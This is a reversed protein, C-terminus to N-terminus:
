LNTSNPYAHSLTELVKERTWYTIGKKKDKDIMVHLMQHHREGCISMLNEQDLQEGGEELPHIHHVLKAPILEGKLRCVECIPTEKIKRNRAAVWLATGYFKKRQKQKIYPKLNTTVASQLGNVVVGDERKGDRNYFDTKNKMNFAHPPEFEWTYRKIPISIWEAM